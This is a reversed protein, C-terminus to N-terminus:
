GKTELNAELIEKYIDMSAKERRSLKKMKHTHTHTYIYRGKGTYYIRIEGKWELVIGNEREM